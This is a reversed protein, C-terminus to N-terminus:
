GVSNDPRRVNHLWITEPSSKNGWLLMQGRILTLGKLTTEKPSVLSWAVIWLGEHLVSSSVWCSHGVDHKFRLSIILDGARYCWRSSSFSILWVPSFRIQWSQCILGGFEVKQTMKPACKGAFALHQNV